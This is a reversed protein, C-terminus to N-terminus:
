YDITIRTIRGDPGVALATSDGLFHVGWYNRKDVSVWSSGSDFSADMGKPGVAVIITGSERNQATIGYVNPLQPRGGLAWTAGGDQTTAFNPFSDDPRSLAGGAAFGEEASIFALSMIGSAELGTVVPTVVVDWSHGRDTSRYVRAGEPSGTAVWALSDGYAVLCTGSAAFGGEGESGRPIALSDVAAWQNGDNTRVMMIRGGVADGMAIGADPSWFDFCDFFGEPERNTWLLAWNAGGDSTRYIRSQTGPGISLLYAHLSDVAHVDRFQLSDAGPVTGFDWTRGGDVSRGYTGSTGSVWVVSGSSSIGILLADSNVEVDTVTLTPKVEDVSCAVLLTLLGLLLPSVYNM